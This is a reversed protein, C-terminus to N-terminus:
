SIIKNAKAASRTRGINKKGCPKYTSAASYHFCSTVGSGPMEKKSAQLTSVQQSIGVSRGFACFPGSSLM